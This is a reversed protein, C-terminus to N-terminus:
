LKATEQSNLVREDDEWLLSTQNALFHVICLVHTPSKIMYARAGEHAACLLAFFQLIFPM